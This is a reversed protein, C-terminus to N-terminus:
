PPRRPPPATPQGRSARLGNISLLEEMFQLKMKPSFTFLSVSKSALTKSYSLYSTGKPGVMTM